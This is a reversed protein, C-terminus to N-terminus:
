RIPGKPLDILHYFLELDQSFAMIHGVFSDNWQLMRSCCSTDFVRVHRFITARSM